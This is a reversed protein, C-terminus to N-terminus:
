EKPTIIISEFEFNRVKLSQSRKQQTFLESDHKSEAFAALRTLEPMIVSGLEPRDKRRLESCNLALEVLKKTEDLPWDPVKPDLVDALNGEQLAIMISHTLGMPDRGTVLQLLIIGLAYVDSKTGVMGTKQYEPDIYCFTGAM